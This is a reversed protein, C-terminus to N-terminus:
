FEIELVTKVTDTGDISTKNVVGIGGKFAGVFKMVASDSDVQMPPPEATAYQKEVWYRVLDQDSLKLVQKLFADREVGYKQDIQRVKEGDPWIKRSKLFYSKVETGSMNAVPNNKNVIVVATGASAEFAGLSLLIFIMGWLSNSNIRHTRNM